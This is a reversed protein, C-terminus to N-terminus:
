RTWMVAHAEGASTAGQGVVVRHNNVAFGIAETAGPLTGLDIVLDPVCTRRM